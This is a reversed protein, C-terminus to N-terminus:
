RLVSHTVQVSALTVSIMTVNAVFTPTYNNNQWFRGNRRHSGALWRNFKYEPKNIRHYLSQPTISASERWGTGLNLVSPAIEKSETKIKYRKVENLPPVGQCKGRSTFCRNLILLRESLTASNLFVLRKPQRRIRTLLKLCEAVRPKHQLNSNRDMKNPKKESQREAIAREQLVIRCGILRSM